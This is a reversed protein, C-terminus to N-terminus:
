ADFDKGVQEIMSCIGVLHFRVGLLEALRTGGKGARREMAGDSIPADLGNPTEEGM